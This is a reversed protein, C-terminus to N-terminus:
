GGEPRDSLRRSVTREITGAVVVQEGDYVVATQGPAVARVPLSPRVTVHDADQLGGCRREEGVLGAAFPVGNSRVQVTVEGVPPERHWTLAGVAFEEVELDAASGVMVENTEVDVGVVYLPEAAAIGIGKRQGITFNYTGTHPRLRRGQGDVIIGPREGLRTRLFRRHDDDEVFCIEQSDPAEHGELGAAAVLARVEPKRMGGLPFRCRRLYQPSVEALVYSQDKLRDVARSLLPPDGEMRAYHGTAIRALGLREALALLLGFRVRANCKACPNPTAGEAYREVFYDVVESRFVETADFTLHPLGLAHAVRRARRVAGSTVRYKEDTGGDSEGRAEGGSGATDTWLELTLGVVRLGQDRLLLAAAASDVGGSMGVLVGRKDLVGGPQLGNTGTRLVEALAGHLADLALAAAPLSQALVEDGAMLDAESLAAAELVSRGRLDECLRSLLAAPIADGEVRSRAARLVGGAVDLEIRITGPSAHHRARGVVTLGRM